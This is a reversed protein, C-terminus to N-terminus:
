QGDTRYWVRIIQHWSTSYEGSTHLDTDQSGEERSNHINPLVVTEINLIEYQDNEYIWANMKTISPDLPEIISNRLFGPKQLQEPVFDQFSIMPNPYTSHSFVFTPIDSQIKPFPVFFSETKRVISFEHSLLHSYRGHYQSSKMGLKM